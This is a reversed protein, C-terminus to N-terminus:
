KMVNLTVDVRMVEGTLPDTASTHQMTQGDRLLAIFNTKFTRFSPYDNTVAPNASKQERDLHVSSDEVVLLVRYLGSGAPNLGCDINTGISRYSISSPIATTGEGSKSGIPVESGMRLNTREGSTVGFVYPLSSLKRDGQHRSIVVTIRAQAPAAQQTVPSSTAAPPPPGPKEQAVGTAAGFAGLLVAMVFSIRM